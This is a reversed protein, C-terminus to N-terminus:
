FNGKEFLKFYDNIFRDMKFKKDFIYKSNKSYIAINDDELIFKMANKLKDKDLKNNELNILIGAWKDTEQDHIMHKIDGINTTIVPKSYALYEIISNPLSESVFYTPLLCIDFMKVWQIWEFPKSNASIYHIYDINKTEKKLEEIIEGTGVLVLHSKKELETNLEVISEVAERWGKEKIGRAVMGFVVIEEGINLLSKEVKKINQLEYGYYIKFTKHFDKFNLFEFIKKNKETAYVISNSRKFMNGVINEFELDWDKNGVLGEYCGHMSLVWKIDIDKIAKYTIKDSWWIHSNVVDIKENLIYERLEKYDGTSDLIIVKESFMKLVNESFLWPRASYVYVDHFSALYNAIRVVLMQGGGIEFDPAVLLIKKRENLFLYSGLQDKYKSDLEILMPKLKQNDYINNSDYGVCGLRKYEEVIVKLFLEKMNAPLKFNNITYLKINILEEYFLLKKESKSVISNSHRRHMNLSKNNFYLKGNKLLAIYCFWDGCISYKKLDELIDLLVSKRMLVGSANPITNKISLAEVIEEQGYAKYNNKWKVSSIDNTYELYNNMIINSNEDIIKSQSYALNVENDEFENVLSEIFELDCLDDAEAIWIIDGLSNEIGKSWQKFCGANKENTLIKYEIDYKSLEKKAVEISNDSSNDDLFIIEYPRYTQNCITSIREHLYNAYNYNPIIVSVKFTNVKLSLLNLIEQVYTDHNHNIKIHNSGKTQLIKYYEKNDLLKEIKLIAEDINLYDISSGGIMENLEPVGGTKEFSLVPTETKLADLVVSPFPDERSTLLFIDSGRFYIETENIYGVFHINLEIGLKKMDSDMWKKYVPDVNGIWLFHNRPNTKIMKKAIEFFIDIGKRLDGYACNMIINSDNPINLKKCLINKAEQNEINLEFKSYAGQPKIIIKEEDISYNSKFEDLVYLNPFIVKKSFKAANKAAKKYDYIEISSNLEHVLSIIDFGNKHLIDSIISSTVSNSICKNIGMLKIHSVINIVNDINEIYSFTDQNLCYTDSYKKFESELKGGQVLLTIVEIGFTKKLTKIIELSLITAGGEHASHAVFLIKNKGNYNINTSSVIPIYKNDSSKSLIKKSKRLASIIGETKLEIMFKKIFIPNSKIINFLKYKNKIIKMLYYKEKSLSIIEIKDLSFTSNKFKIKFFLNKPKNPFRFIVSKSGYNSDFNRKDGNSLDEVEALEVNDIPLKLQFFENDKIQLITFELYYDEKIIKEKNFKKRM